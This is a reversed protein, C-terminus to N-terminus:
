WGSSDVVNLEVSVVCTTIPNVFPVVYRNLTCAVFASPVLPYEVTVFATVGDYVLRRPEDDGLPSFVSSTETRIPSCSGHSTGRGSDVHRPGLAILRRVETTHDVGDAHPALDLHLRNKGTKAVGPPGFTLFPMRDMRHVFRSM